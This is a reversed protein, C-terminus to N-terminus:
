GVTAEKFYDLSVLQVPPGEPQTFPLRSLRVITEVVWEAEAWCWVNSKGAVLRGKIVAVSWPLWLWEDNSHVQECTRASPYLDIGHYRENRQEQVQFLLGNEAPIYVSQDGGGSGLARDAESEEHDDALPCILAVAPFRRGAIEVTSAARDIVVLQRWSM